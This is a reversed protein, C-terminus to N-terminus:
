GVQGVEQQVKCLCPHQKPLKSAKHVEDQHQQLQPRCVNQSTFSSNVFLNHTLSPRHLETM